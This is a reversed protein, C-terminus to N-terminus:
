PIKEVALIEAHRYQTACGRRPQAFSKEDGEATRIIAMARPQAVPEFRLM